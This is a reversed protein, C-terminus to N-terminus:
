ERDGGANEKDQKIQSAIMATTLVANITKVALSAAIYAVIAGILARKCCIFPSLGTLWGVFSLAFFCLVSISVAIYRANLPM